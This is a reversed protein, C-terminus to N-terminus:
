CVHSIKMIITSQQLDQQQRLLFPEGKKKQNNQSLNDVCNIIITQSFTMQQIPSVM